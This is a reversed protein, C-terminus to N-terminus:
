RDDRGQAQGANVLHRRSRVAIGLLILGSLLLGSSAPEPIPTLNIGWSVLEHLDGGEADAVFLVWDGNPDLGTFSSLMATRPSTDLALAPFVKRGDPQYTGTLLNGGNGGYSHIDMAAAASFTVNLGDDGYGLSDVATRGPRNLLVSFGTGHTLWAYLDGNRSGSINLNVTLSGIPGSVGSVNYESALGALDGDPIPQNVPVNLVFAAQAVSAWLTTV